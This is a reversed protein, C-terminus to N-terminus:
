PRGGDAEASLARSLIEEVVDSKANSYGLMSNWSRQALEKKLQGYRTRDAPHSRLWDRFVLIRQIEPAATPGFVHLNVDYPDGDDRRRTLVRHHYWNPERMVLRYGLANLPSLYTREDSPDALVLLMDLIPKAALGPVSTSGTHELRLIADPDLATSIAAQEEAYWQPWRSDYDEVVMHEIPRQEGILADRHEEDSWQAM